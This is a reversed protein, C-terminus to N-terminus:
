IPYQRWANKVDYVKEYRRIARKLGEGVGCRHQMMDEVRNWQGGEFVWGMKPNRHDYVCQSGCKTFFGNVISKQLDPDRAKLYINDPGCAKIVMEPVYPVLHNAPGTSFTVHRPNAKVYPDNESHCAWTIGGTEDGNASRVLSDGPVGVWRCYDNPQGQGSLDYWGKIPGGIPIRPSDNPHGWDMIGEPRLCNKYCDQVKRTRFESCMKGGNKGERLCQRTYVIQGKGCSGSLTKCQESSSWPTMVADQPRLSDVYNPPLQSQTQIKDNRLKWFLAGGGGFIFFICLFVLFLNLDM